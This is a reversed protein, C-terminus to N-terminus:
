AGTIKCRAVREYISHLGATSRRGTRQTGKRILWTRCSNDCINNDKRLNERIEDADTDNVTCFEELSSYRDRLM